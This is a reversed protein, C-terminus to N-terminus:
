ELELLAAARFVGVLTKGDRLTGQHAMRLVDPLPKWHIEFVEHEEPQSAQCALDRALFLHVVETFVGPSSVYDGLSHWRQASTGAEELLERQATALPPERADIKGAPLEWLWGGVAHRYQYLLCIHQRADVAVVAAGGPHRIIELDATTGNPLQVTEVDLEVVRGRFVSTRSLLTMAPAADM